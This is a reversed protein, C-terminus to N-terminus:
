CQQMLDPRGQPLVPTADRLGNLWDAYTFRQIKADFRRERCYFKLNIQSSFVGNRIDSHKYMVGLIDFSAVFVSIDSSSSGYLM